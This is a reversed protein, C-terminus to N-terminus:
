QNASKAAQKEGRVTWRKRAKAARTLVSEIAADNRANEKEMDALLAGGMNPHQLLFNQRALFAAASELFVCRDHWDGLAAQIDKLDEVLPPSVVSGSNVLLEARYRLRKTAIRWAHLNAISRSEEALRYAEDWESMSRAMATELRPTPDADLDARAVAKRAREIFTVLDHKAVEKRASALLSERNKKLYTELTEWGERLIPSQAERSRQRALDINVDLNRCSGLARRVRRLTRVVKRSAPSKAEALIIRLSQQLRRSWVRLDHITDPDDSLLFKPVLTVFRELRKHTLKVLKKQALGPGSETSGSGM